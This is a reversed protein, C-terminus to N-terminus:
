EGMNSAQTYTLGFHSYFVCCYLLFQSHSSLLACKNTIYLTGPSQRPLDGLVIDIGPQVQMLEEGNDSDLVPEGSCSIERVGLVM